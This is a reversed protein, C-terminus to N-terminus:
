HEFGYQENRLVALYPSHACRRYAAAHYRGASAHSRLVERMEGDFWGGTAAAKTMVMWHSCSGTALLLEDWGPAAAEFPVSFAAGGVPDTSPAGYSDTGALADTAPHANGTTRRVLAWGPGAAAACNHQEVFRPAKFAGAACAACPTPPGVYLRPRVTM